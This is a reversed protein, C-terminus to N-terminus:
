LHQLMQKVIKKHPLKLRYTVFLGRKKPQVIEALTLLRLHKSAAFKSLKIEKAIDLSRESGNNKLFRIIHLRKENGFMKYTRELNKLHTM